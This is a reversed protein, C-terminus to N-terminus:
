CFASRAVAQPSAINFERDALKFIEVELAAMRRGYQESLEALRTPDVKIGNSELEVLVDVLPVEVDYFLPELSADKLRQDLPPVLRLAVDADEAAYHTIEALPLRM